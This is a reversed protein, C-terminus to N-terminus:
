AHGGEADLLSFALDRADTINTNLSTVVLTNKENEHSIMIERVGMQSMTWFISNLGAATCNQFNSASFTLPTDLLETLHHGIITDIWDLVNHLRPPVEREMDGWGRKETCVPHHDCGKCLSTIEAVGNLARAIKQRVGSAVALPRFHGDMPAMLELSHKNIFDMEESVQPSLIAMRAHVQAMSTHVGKKTM